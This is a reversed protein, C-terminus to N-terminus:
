PNPDGLLLVRLTRLEPNALGMATDWDQSGTGGRAALELRTKAARDILGILEAPPLEALRKFAGGADAQPDEQLCALAYAFPDKVGIGLTSTAYLLWSVLATASAHQGLLTKV